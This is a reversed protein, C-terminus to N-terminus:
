SSVRESRTVKFDFFRNVGECATIGAYLTESLAAVRCGFEQNDVFVKLQRGDM